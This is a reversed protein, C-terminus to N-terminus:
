QGEPLKIFSSADEKIEWRGETPVRLTHKTVRIFEGFAMRAAEFDKAKAVLDAHLRKIEVSASEPIAIEEPRLGNELVKSVENM